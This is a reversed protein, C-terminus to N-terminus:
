FLIEMATAYKSVEPLTGYWGWKSLILDGYSAYKSLTVDRCDVGSVSVSPSTPLVSISVYPLKMM